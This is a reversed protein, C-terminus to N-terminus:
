IRSSCTPEQKPPQDKARRVKALPRKRRSAFALALPVLALGGDFALGNAASSTSSSSSSCNFGYGSVNEAPLPVCSIPPQGAPYIACLGAVDDDDLDRKSTELPNVVEFYMTANVDPTHALGLFHGAEHAMTNALDACHAQDVLGDCQDNVLDRFEYDVEDFATDADLIRGTTIESTVLTYALVDGSTDVDSTWCNYKNDCDANNPDLCDDGPPVVQDCSKSRFVVLHTNEVDQSLMPQSVLVHTYGVEFSPTTGDDWYTFDSCTFGLWAGFGNDLQTTASGANSGFTQSGQDNVLFHVQRSPWYLCPPNSGNGSTTRVFALVPVVLLLFLLPALRRV